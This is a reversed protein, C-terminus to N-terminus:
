VYKNKTYHLIKEYNKTEVSLVKGIYFYGDAIDFKEHVTGIIVSHFDLLVPSNGQQNVLVGEFQEKCTLSNRAFTRALDEQGCHLFHFAFNDGLASAMIRTKGLGFSCYGDGIIRFSSITCGRFDGKKLEGKSHMVMTTLIGVPGIFERYMGRLVKEM